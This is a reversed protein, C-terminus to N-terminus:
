AVISPSADIAMAAMTKIDTSVADNTNAGNARVRMATSGAM